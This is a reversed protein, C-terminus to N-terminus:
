GIKASKGIEYVISSTTLARCHKCIAANTNKIQEFNHEYDLITFLKVTYFKDIVINCTDLHIGTIKGYRVKGNEFFFANDGKSFRKNFDEDSEVFRLDCKEPPNISSGKKPLYFTRPKGSFFQLTYFKYIIGDKSDIIDALIAWGENDFHALETLMM